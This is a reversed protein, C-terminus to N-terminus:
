CGGGGTEAGVNRADEPTDVDLAAAPMAIVTVDDAADLLARAGRDGRLAALDVRYCAPFVAPVGRIGGYGAAAIQHPAARWATVLAGLEASGIGPQDCVMLLLADSDPDAAAVGCRISAAIGERWQPNHVVRATTGALAERVPEDVGGTVVVVGAACHRLAARAARLVLPEGDIELLQKPTGLRRSAGAALVIGAVSSEVDADSMVRLM